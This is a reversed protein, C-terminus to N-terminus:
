DAGAAKNTNTPIELWESKAGDTLAQERLEDSANAVAFLVKKYPNMCTDIARVLIRVGTSSEAKAVLEAAGKEKGLIDSITM